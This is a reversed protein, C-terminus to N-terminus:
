SLQVVELHLKLSQTVASAESIVIDFQTTSIPVFVLGFWTSDADLDGGAEVTFRVKYNTSAMVNAMTVRIRSKAAIATQYVASSFDGSVPLPSGVVGGGINLGSFWGINKVNALAAVIAFHEKPYLGNRMTTALSMASSVGNVREVFILTNSLPNTAVANSTAALEDSYTAAKLFNYSAVIADLNSEDVIRRVEVGTSTRILYLYDGTNFADVVTLAFTTGSNTGKIDTETTFTCSSKCYMVEGVKLYNIKMQAVLVPTGGGTTTIDSVITNKSSLAILAEIIQYGNNENDPTISPAIGYLAMLKAINVHLDGYVNRNVPTGNGTGTNDKIRGFPYNVLDSLDINPNSILPIM